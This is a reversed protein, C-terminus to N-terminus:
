HGFRNEATMKGSAFISTRQRLLHWTVPPFPYCGSIRPVVSALLKESWLGVIEHLHALVNVTVDTKTLHASLFTFTFSFNTENIGRGLTRLPFRLIPPASAPAPVHQAIEASFGQERVYLMSSPDKKGGPLQNTIGRRGPKTTITIGAVRPVAVWPGVLINQGRFTYCRPDVPSVPALLLYLPTTFGSNGM